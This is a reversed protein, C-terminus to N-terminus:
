SMKQYFHNKKLNELPICDITCIKTNLKIPENTYYTFKDSITFITEGVDSGDILTQSSIDIRPVQLGNCVDKVIVTSLNGTLTTTTIGGIPRHFNMYFYSAPNIPRPLTIKYTDGDSRTFVFNQLSTGLINKTSVFKIEVTFINRETGDEEITSQTPSLIDIGETNVRNIIRPPTGSVPKGDKFALFFVIFSIKNNSGISITYARGSTSPDLDFNPNYSINVPFTPPSIIRGGECIFTGNVSSSPINDSGFDFPINQTRCNIPNISDM